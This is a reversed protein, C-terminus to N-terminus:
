QCEPDSCSMYPPCWSGTKPCQRWYGSYAPYFGYPRWNGMGNWHHPNHRRTQWGVGWRPGWRPYFAENYNTYIMYILVLIAIISIIYSLFM